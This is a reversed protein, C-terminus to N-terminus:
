EEEEVSEDQFARFKIGSLDLNGDEDVPCVFIEEFEPRVEIPLVFITSDDDGGIVQGRLRVEGDESLYWSAPPGNGGSNEWGDLFEVTIPEGEAWEEGVNYWGTEPELKPARTNGVVDFITKDIGLDRSKSM